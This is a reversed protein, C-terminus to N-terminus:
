RERRLGRRQHVPMHEASSPHLANSPKLILIVKRRGFNLDLDVNWLKLKKHHGQALISKFQFKYDSGTILNDNPELKRTPIELIVNLIIKLVLV